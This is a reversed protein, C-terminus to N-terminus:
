YSNLFSIIKFGVLFVYSGGGGGGAGNEIYINRVMQQKSNYSHQSLEENHLDAGCGEERLGMTKICANEGQQGVLVYLEENKHLELVSVAM